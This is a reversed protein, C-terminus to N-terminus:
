LISEIIEFVREKFPRGDMTIIEPDNFDNFLKFFNIYINNDKIYFEDEHGPIFICTLERNIKPYKQELESFNLVKVPAILLSRMERDDLVRMNNNWFRSETKTRESLRERNSIASLVKSVSRKTFDANYLVQMEDREAISAFYEDSIKEKDSVSDWYFIMMEMVTFNNIIKLM